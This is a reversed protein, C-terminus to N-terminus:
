AGGGRNLGICGRWGEVIAIHVVSGVETKNEWPSDTAFCADAPTASHAEQFNSLDQVAPDVGPPRAALVQEVM